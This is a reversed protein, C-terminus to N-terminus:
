QDEEEHLLTAPSLEAPPVGCFSTGLDALTSAKIPAVEFETLADDLSSSVIAKKLDAVSSFPCLNRPPVKGEEQNVTLGSTIRPPLM